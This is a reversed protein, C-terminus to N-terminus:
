SAFSGKSFYQSGKSFDQDDDRHRITDEDNVSSFDQRALARKLIALREPVGDAPDGYVRGLSRLPGMYDKLQKSAEDIGRFVVHDISNADLVQSVLKLVEGMVKDDRSNLKEWMQNDREMMQTMWEGLPIATYVKPPEDPPTKNAM